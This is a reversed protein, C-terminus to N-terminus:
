NYKLLCIGPRLVESHRFDLDQGVSTSPRAAPHPTWRQESSGGPDPFSPGPVPNSVPPPFATHRRNFMPPPQTLNALQQLSPLNLSDLYSPGSEEVSVGLRALFAGSKDKWERDRREEERGNRRRQGSDEWRGRREREDQRRWDMNRSRSRERSPSRRRRSSRSRSRSRRRKRRDREAFALNSKIVEVDDSDGEDQADSAGNDDSTCDVVVFDVQDSGENPSLEKFRNGSLRSKSRSRQRSRKSWNKSGDSRSRSRSRFTRSRSREKTSSTGRSGELSDKFPANTDVDNNLSDKEACVLKEGGECVIVQGSPDLRIEREVVIEDAEEEEEEGMSDGNSKCSDKVDDEHEEMIAEEINEIGEDSLCIVEEDDELLVEQDCNGVVQGNPLKKNTETDPGPSTKMEISEEGEKNKGTGDVVKMVAQGDVEEANDDGGTDAMEEEMPGLRCFVLGILSLKCFLLGPRMSVPLIDIM